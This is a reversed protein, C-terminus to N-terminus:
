TTSRDFIRNLIPTIVVFGIFIVVVYFIFNTGIALPGAIDSTYTNYLTFIIAAVVADPLYNSVLERLKM